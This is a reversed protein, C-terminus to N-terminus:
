TFNCYSPPLYQSIFAQTLSPNLYFISTGSDIVATQASYQTLDNLGALVGLVELQWYYSDVPVTSFLSKQKMQSSIQNYYMSSSSSENLLQLVFTNTAIQDQQYALDLFNPETQPDTYGVGM